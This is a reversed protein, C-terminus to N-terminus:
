ALGTISSSGAGCVEGPVVQQSHQYSLYPDTVSGPSNYLGQCINLGTGQYGPQKAFGEYCPWGFNEVISDSVDGIRDIEEWTDWGFDGIWLERTGPRPTIRFPNRLGYAIIRGAAPYTSVLPNDPMAAGTTPDVRLITGSFGVPDVTTRIDQARLAGGEATPPSLNTGGPPDGCPNTTPYGYQGYDVGNFSAGEGASVYLAGDAGFVLSGISHSPFQQCWNELLVQEAGTMVDGSAQLKSLRGGVVCGNTNGGPPDPCNDSTAGPTGWRPPTGGPAADLTYLVYVYPTSPFNPDLALGLLGRDWYNMVNTRLDAFITPTPDTLSDFVKILGSKEAVFVRGDPAFKFATPQTLGSFVATEQFGYPLTVARAAVTALLMTAVVVLAFALSRRRSHSPGPAALM